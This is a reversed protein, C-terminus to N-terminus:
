EGVELMFHFEDSGPAMSPGELIRLPHVNEAVWGLLRKVDSPIFVHFHISYDMEILREAEKLASAGEKEHVFRAYDLFHEYDRELNPNRYDLILHELTTRVRNRDFIMRKDPVILYLKGGPKVVRCWQQVAGIPDRMHEIVHASILFDYSNDEINDLTQADGLIDAEVLPLDRLEPYHERLDKVSYRDIYEVKMGSHKVMPRHLPGIELGRGSLQKSFHRRWDIDKYTQLEHDVIQAQPVETEWKTPTTNASGTPNLASLEHTSEMGTFSTLILRVPL